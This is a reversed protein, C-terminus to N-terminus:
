TWKDGITPGSLAMESRPERRTLRMAVDDAPGATSAIPSALLARLALGLGCERFVIEVLAARGGDVAGGDLM